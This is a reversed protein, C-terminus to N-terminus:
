PREIDSFQCFTRKDARTIEHTIRPGYHACRVTGTGVLCATVAVHHVTATQKNVQVQTQTTQKNNNM